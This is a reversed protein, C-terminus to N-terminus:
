LFVAYPVFPTVPVKLFFGKQGLYPVNGALKSHNADWLHTLPLLATGHLKEGFLNLFMTFNIPGSAEKLM